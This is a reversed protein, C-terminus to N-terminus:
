FFMNLIGLIGGVLAGLNVIMDLENKMVTLVMEELEEIQMENIKEEVMMSINVNKLIGSVARESVSRYMSRILERIKEEQLNMEKCLDIVSKQELSIEM